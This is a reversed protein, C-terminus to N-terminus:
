KQNRLSVQIRAWVYWKNVATSNSQQVVIKLGYHQVGTSSSDIWPAPVNLAGTISAAGSTTAAAAVHPRIRRTHKEGPALFVANAYSRASSLGTPTSIDDYDHYVCCFAYAPATGPSALQTCPRINYEIWDIKYQDFASSYNANDPLDTFVTDFSYLGAASSTSTVEGYDSWQIVTVKRNDVRRLEGTFDAINTAITSVFQEPERAPTERRRGRQRSRRSNRHAPVSTGDM